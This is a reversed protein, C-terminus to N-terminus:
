YRRYYGYPYPYAYAYPYPRAVYVGPYPAVAYVPRRQLVPEQPVTSALRAAENYPVPQVTVPEALHFQLLAEPPLDLRPGHTAGSILTGSAGGAVAGIGAGVGGGAVAGILAGVVAGGVANTATYGTKSPGQSSWVETDLPYTTGGLQLATLRLELKPSGALAGANKSEVVEGNLVAGRPIAIM